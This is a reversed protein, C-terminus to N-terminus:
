YEQILSKGLRQQIMDHLKIEEVPEEGQWADQCLEYCKGEVRDVDQRGQEETEEDTLEEGVRMQTMTVWCSSFCVLYHKILNWSEGGEM